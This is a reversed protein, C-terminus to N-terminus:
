IDNKILDEYSERKIVVRSEGDKVFVAAARPIRNYNSAMSYCYAGTTLVALTDGVEANQIAVDKQLLDGSECCKGAVTVVFDKELNAKNAIEITYEANYLAFRPNDTMGGDVSVYTRVNEITKVAGVKYLTLGAHGVISRGPEIYIFPVPFQLEECKEKLAKSADRLFLDFPQQDDGEVYKVGFGGGLDIEGVTVGSKRRFDDAFEIMIKAADCFPETTFIQSGIHCHFGKLEVGNYQLCHLAADMAEGNELAFGFKCDIQGTKIYEHTHVDIGPKIRLIINVKKNLKEAIANINRLESFNDVVIRGVNSKIAYELEQFTKNNGHFMLLEPDFGASIATYIEGGSVVDAGIGEEKCIRYMEKCSFAKSAYLVRGFGDYYENISDRFDRINKRILSEDFVYLPTQYNDALEVCDAGGFTLHGLDNVAISESIM